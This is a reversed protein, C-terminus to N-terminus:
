LFYPKTKTKYRNRFILDKLNSFLSLMLNCMCTKFFKLFNFLYKYWYVALSENKFAVCSKKLVPKRILTIM